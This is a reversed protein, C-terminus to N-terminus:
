NSNGFLSNFVDVIAQAYPSNAQEQPIEQIMSLLEERIIDEPINSAVMADVMTSIQRKAQPYQMDSNEPPTYPGYGEESTRVPDNISGLMQDSMLGTPYTPDSVTVGTAPMSPLGGITNVGMGDSPDFQKSNPLSIQQEAVPMSGAAPMSPLGGSVNVGMGDSPDFQKVNPLSVGQTDVPVESTANQMYWANNGLAQGVKSDPDSTAGVSAQFEPYTGKADPSAVPGSAKAADDLAAEDVVSGGVAIGFPSIDETVVESPPAVVESTSGITLGNSILKDLYADLNEASPTPLNKEKLTKVIFKEADERSEFSDPADITFDSQATESQSASVQAQEQTTLPVMKGSNPDLKVMQSPDDANYFFVDEGVKVSTPKAGPLVVGNISDTVVNYRPVKLEKWDIKGAADVARQEKADAITATREARADANRALQLREESNNLDAMKWANAMDSKMFDMQMLRSEKNRAAEADLTAYKTSGYTDAFQVLGQGLGSLLVGSSSIPQGTM